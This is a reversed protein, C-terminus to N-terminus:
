KVSFICALLGLLQPSQGLNTAFGKICTRQNTMPGNIKNSHTAILQQFFLVYRSDRRFQARIIRGM